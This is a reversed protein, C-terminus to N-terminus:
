EVTRARPNIPCYRPMESATRMGNLWDTLTPAPQRSEPTRDANLTRYWEFDVITFGLVSYVQALRFRARTYPTCALCLSGTVAERAFRVPTPSGCEDCRTMKHIPTAETTCKGQQQCM